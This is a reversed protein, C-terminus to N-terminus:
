FMTFLNTELRGGYTGDNITLLQELRKAKLNFPPALLDIGSQKKLRTGQGSLIDKNPEFEGIPLHETVIAYKYEVLKAAVKKVEANSLHQLVQRLIVCDAKPLEDKAIDLCQFQLKEAQYSARNYDILGQVIDVSIYNRTYDVLQKGVNFDGCGLDCVSIPTAFSKFFKTVAEVYPKVFQPHHSGNGSYFKSGNKGWLGREYIQEMAARTPWPKKTKSTRSM